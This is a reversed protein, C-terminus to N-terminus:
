KSRLSECAGLIEVEGSCWRLGCREFELRALAKVEDRERGNEKEAEADEEGGTM